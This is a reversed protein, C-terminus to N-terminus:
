AAARGPRRLARRDMVTKGGWVGDLSPDDIAERLCQAAVPCAACVKKAPGADGGITPFFLEPDVTACVADDTWHPAKM